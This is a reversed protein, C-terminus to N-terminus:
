DHAFFDFAPIEKAKAKEYALKACVIDQIALGTSDFITIEADNERVKKMGAVVEGLSCYIDEVKFQGRSLPV